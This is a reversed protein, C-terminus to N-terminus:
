GGMTTWRVDVVYEIDADLIQSSDIVGPTAVAKGQMGTDAAILRTFTSVFAEPSSAVARAFALQADTPAPSADFVYTTKRVLAALVRSRLAADQGLSFTDILSAM